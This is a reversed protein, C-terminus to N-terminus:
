APDQAAEAAVDQDGEHRQPREAEQLALHVAVSVILLLIVTMMTKELRIARFYAAHEITWDSAPPTGLSAAVAAALRLVTSM